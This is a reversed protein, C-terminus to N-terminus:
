WLKSDFDAEILCEADSAFFYSPFEYGEAWKVASSADYDNSAAEAAEAVLDRLDRESSLSGQPFCAAAWKSIVPAIDTSDVRSIGSRGNGEVGYLGPGASPTPKM